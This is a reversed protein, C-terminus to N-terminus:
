TNIELSKKNTKASSPQDRQFAIKENVRKLGKVSSNMAKKSIEVLGRLNGKLEEMSKDLRTIRSEHETKMVKIDETLKQTMRLFKDTNKQCLIRQSPISLIM